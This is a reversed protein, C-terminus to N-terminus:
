AGPALTALGARRAAGALRSDYVLMAGLDEAVSLATALHLADLTRLERPELEAAHELVKEDLPILAVADSAEAALRAYSPGYRACARIAETRLLRSAVHGEWRELEARLDNAEDEGLVLKVFASTDVYALRGAV